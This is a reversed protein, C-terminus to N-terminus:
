REIPTVLGGYNEEVFESLRPDLFADILKAIDPDEVNDQHVVLQLAYDEFGEFHAIEHSSDIGAVYFAYATATALDTDEFARPVSEVKIFELNRPNDVVDDVSLRSLEVGPELSVLGIEELFKLATSEAVTSNSIAVSAGDPVDALSAYDQSYLVQRQKFLPAVAALHFGNERNQAEMYVKHMAVNADVEQKETAELIQRTEEIHVYDIVIGYDSAITDRVFEISAQELPNSTAGAVRVTASAGDASDAAQGDQSACGALVTVAVLAASALVRSRQRATTM